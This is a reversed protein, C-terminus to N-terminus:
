EGAHHVNQKFIVPASTRAPARFPPQGVTRQFSFRGFVSFRYSVTFFPLSFTFEQGRAGPAPARGFVPTLFYWFTDFLTLFHWVVM